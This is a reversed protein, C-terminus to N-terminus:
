EGLRNKYREHTKEINKELIESLSTKAYRKLFVGYYFVVNQLDESQLDTLGKLAPYPIGDKYGLLSNGGERFNTLNFVFKMFERLLPRYHMEAVTKDIDQRLYKVSNQFEEDGEMEEETLMALALQELYPAANVEKSFQVLYWFFDGLEEILDTKNEKQHFINKKIEDIIEGAEGILALETEAFMGIVETKSQEAIYEKFNM